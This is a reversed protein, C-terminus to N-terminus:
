CTIITRIFGFTMECSIDCSFQPVWVAFVLALLVCFFVGLDSSLGNVHWVSMYGDGM